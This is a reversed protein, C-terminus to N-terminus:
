PFRAGQTAGHATDRDYDRERQLHRELIQNAVANARRGLADCDSEPPLAAITRDIEHAADLGIRRHGQEHATLATLYSAWKQRLAASGQAENAWRPLTITTQLRTQVSTIQCARGRTDYRFNWHVNWRTYGDFRRGNESAPGKARMDGRLEAESTGMVDYHNAKEEEVVAAFALPAGLAAISLLLRIPHPTLTMEDPVDPSAPNL